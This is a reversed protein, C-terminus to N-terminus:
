ARARFMSCFFVRCLEMDRASDRERGGEERERERERKRRAEHMERVQVSEPKRCRQTKRSREFRDLLPLAMQPSLTHFTPTGPYAIHSCTERLTWPTGFLRIPFSNCNFVKQCHLKSCRMIKILLLSANTCYVENGSLKSNFCM